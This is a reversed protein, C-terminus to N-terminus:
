AVNKGLDTYIPEIEEFTLPWQEKTKRPAIQVLYYALLVWPQRFSHAFKARKQVQEIVFPLKVLFEAIEHMLNPTLRDRFAHLVIQNTKGTGAPIGIQEEYLRALAGYAERELATAESLQVIARTFFDDVAEILAMSKAVTRRVQNTVTSGEQVKYINDHTLESHAHQLLTRLQIECPLGVPVTLGDSAVESTSTVVYHKSQYAFELPRSDRDKEYDKDLSFNWLDCNEIIRQLPTIDETLLVVFRLGVKDTIESYPDEYPKDRHFGKELLSDDEKLRPAKAIKLFNDLNLGPDSERLRDEITKKVFNGWARFFPQDKHWKELFEAETM